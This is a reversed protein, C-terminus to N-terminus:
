CGDDDTYVEGDPQTHRIGVFMMHEIREFQEDLAQEVVEHALGDYIMIRGHAEAKLLSKSPNFLANHQFKDNAGVAPTLLALVIALILGIPIYHTNTGTQETLNQHTLTKM